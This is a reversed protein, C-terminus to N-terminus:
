QGELNLDSLMDYVSYKKLYSPYKCLYVTSPICNDNKNPVLDCLSCISPIKDPYKANDFKRHYKHRKYLIGKYRVFYDEQKKKNKSPM